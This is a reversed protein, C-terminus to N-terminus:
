SPVTRRQLKAATTSDRAIILAFQASVGGPKVDGSVCVKVSEGTSAETRTPDACGNAGDTAPFLQVQDTLPIAPPFAVSPVISAFPFKLAGATSGVGLVMVIVAASVAFGDSLARLATVSSFGL